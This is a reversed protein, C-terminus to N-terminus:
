IARALARRLDQALTVREEPTLFAGLEIVRGGGKLTLYQEIIGDERLHVSVWYPNAQWDRITGDAEFRQVRILDPWLHLEERMMRALRNRRIMYRFLAFAGILFPLLGWFVPTGIFPLVPIALGLGIIWSMIKLGQPTLSQHPWLTIAYIPDDARQIM